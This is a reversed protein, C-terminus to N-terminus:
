LSKKYLGPSIGVNRKFFVNFYNQDEFGLFFSVEKVSKGEKLLSKARNTKIDSFYQSVGKGTYKKFIKKLNPVSLGCLDAIQSVTLRKEINEEMIEIIEGYKEATQSKTATKKSYGKAMVTLILSELENVFIQFDYEKNENLGLIAGNKDYVFIEKAKKLLVCLKKAEKEETKYIGHNVTMLNNCSFTLIITYPETEKEAWLRHFEMPKHFFCEGSKLTFVNKGATIGLLGDLNCVMEWFDHSEGEFFYDNKFKESFFTYLKKIELSKKIKIGSIEKKETTM